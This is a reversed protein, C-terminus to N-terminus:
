PSITIVAAAISCQLNRHTTPYTGEDDCDGTVFPVPAVSGSAVLDFLPKILFIGGVHPLLALNLSQHNPRLTSFYPFINVAMSRPSAGLIDNIVDSLTTYPVIRLCALTDSGSSCGVDSFM